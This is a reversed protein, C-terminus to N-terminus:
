CRGFVTSRPFTRCRGRSSCCVGDFERDLDAWDVLGSLQELRQNVQVGSVLGNALSFQGLERRAMAFTEDFALCQDISALLSLKFEIKFRSPLM